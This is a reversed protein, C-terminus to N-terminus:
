IRLRPGQFGAVQIPGQEPDELTVAWGATRDRELQWASRLSDLLPTSVRRDSSILTPTKIVEVGPVAVIDDELFQYDQDRLKVATIRAGPDAALREQM